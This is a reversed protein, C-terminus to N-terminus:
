EKRVVTIFTEVPVSFFKSLVMLENISPNRRGSEWSSITAKSRSPMYLNNEEAFDTLTEAFETQTLENDIRYQRIYKGTPSLDELSNKRQLDDELSSELSKGKKRRHYYAGYSINHAECMSGLSDYSKGRHDICKTRKM